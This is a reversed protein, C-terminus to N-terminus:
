KISCAKAEEVFDNDPLILFESFTQGTSYGLQLICNLDWSYWSIYLISDLIFLIMCTIEWFMM